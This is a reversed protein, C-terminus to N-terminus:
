GLAWAGGLFVSPAFSIQVFGTHQGKPITVIGGNILTYMSADPIAYDTGNATNFDKVLQSDLSVTVQIDEPATGDTALNIPVVDVTSVDNSNDFSLTLFNATSSATLKIEVPKILTGTNHNSQIEGNDFAEDKLCGVGSLSIASILLLASKINMKM